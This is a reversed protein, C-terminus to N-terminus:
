RVAAPQPVVPEALSGARKLLAVGVSGWLLGLLLGEGGSFIEDAVDGLPFAIILLVGCWWPVLRALLIAVGLLASGILVTIAGAIRVETLTPGGTAIGAVIVLAVIGYGSVALATGIGGVRGYRPASRHLVHLGFIALMAGVFAGIVVLEHVYATPGVYRVGTPAVQTLITSLVFLAAASVGAAGGRKTASSSLTPSSM